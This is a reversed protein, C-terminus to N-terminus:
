SSSAPALDDEVATFFSDFTSSGSFDDYFTGRWEVTTTNPSTGTTTTITVPVAKFSINYTVYEKGDENTKWEASPKSAICKLLCRRKKAVRGGNECMFAFPTAPKSATGLTRGDSDADYGVMQNFIARLDSTSELDRFEMEGSFGNDIDDSTWIEDDAYTKDDSLEPDFKVSVLGPIATPTDWAPTTESTMFAIHANKVGFWNQKTYATM